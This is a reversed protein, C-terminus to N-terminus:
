TGCLQELRRSALWWCAVCALGYVLATALAIGAVGLWRMLLFNLLANLLVNAAAVVFVQRNMGLATLLRVALISSVYWPIQLCLMQQVKAVEIATAVTFAGGGFVLAIIPGSLLALVASVPLSVLIALRMTRGFEANLRTWEARAALASFVSLAPGGLVRAGFGSAFMTLVSGFSLQAVSGPALWSAMTQDLLPTTAMLAAGSLLPLYHGAVQAIEERHRGLGSLAAGRGRLLLWALALCQFAYGADTAYALADIGLGSHLGYVGAGALVPVLAPALAPIAFRGAANLEATLFGSVGGLVLMPLLLSLLHEALRRKGADFGTAVWGLYAPAALWLLVACVILAAILLLLVAGSLEAGARAGERSRLAMAVPVHASALSTAVVTILFLPLTSAMVFADVADGAGFYRAVLQERLLTALGVLVTMM